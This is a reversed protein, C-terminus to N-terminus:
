IRTDTRAHTMRTVLHFCVTADGKKGVAKMEPVVPGYVYKVSFRSCLKLPFLWSARQKEEVNKIGLELDKGSGKKVIDQQKAYDKVIAVRSRRPAKPSVPQYQM